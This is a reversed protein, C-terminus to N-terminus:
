CMSLKSEHRRLATAQLGVHDVGRIGRAVSSKVPGASSVDANSFKKFIMPETTRCHLVIDLLQHSTRGRANAGLFLCGNQEVPIYMELYVPVYLM